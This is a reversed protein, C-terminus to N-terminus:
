EEELRKETAKIADFIELESYLRERDLFAAINAAEEPDAYSGVKIAYPLEVEESGNENTVEVELWLTYETEAM